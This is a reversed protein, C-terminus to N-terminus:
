PHVPRRTARRCGLFHTPDAIWPGWSTEQPLDPRYIFQTAIRPTAVNPHQADTPTSVPANPNPLTHTIDDPTHTPAPTAAPPAPAGVAGAAGSKSASDGGPLQPFPTCGAIIAATAACGLVAVPRRFTMCHTRTPPNRRPPVRNSSM